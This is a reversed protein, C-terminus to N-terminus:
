VIALESTLADFRRGKGLMGSLWDLSWVKPELEQYYLKDIPHQHDNTDWVHVEKRGDYMAAKTGHILILRTM